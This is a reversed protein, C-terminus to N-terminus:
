KNCLLVVAAYAALTASDDCVSRASLRPQLGLRHDRVKVHLWVAMTARTQRKFDGGGYDVYMCKNSSMVLGLPISPQTPEAMM